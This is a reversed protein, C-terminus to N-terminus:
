TTSATRAEARDFFHVLTLCTLDRAQPREMADSQPPCVGLGVPDNGVLGVGFSAVSDVPRCLM